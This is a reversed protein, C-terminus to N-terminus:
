LAVVLHMYAMIYGEAAETSLLAVVIHLDAM